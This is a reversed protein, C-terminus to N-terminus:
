IAESGATLQWQERLTLKQVPVSDRLAAGGSKEAMVDATFSSDTMSTVTLCIGNVAISDGMKTGELVRSCAIEVKGSSGSIDLRKIKGKEEVIGTFM